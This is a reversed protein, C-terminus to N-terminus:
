KIQVIEVIRAHSNLVTRLVSIVFWHGYYLCNFWLNILSHVFWSTFVVKRFGVRGGWGEFFNSVPFCFWYFYVLPFFWNDTRAMSLKTWIVVDDFIADPYLEWFGIGTGIELGANKDRITKDRPGWNGHFSSWCLKLPLAVHITVTWIYRLFRNNFALTWTKNPANSSTGSVVFISIHPLFYKKQTFSLFVM